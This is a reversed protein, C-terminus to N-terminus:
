GGNTHLPGLQAWPRHDKTVVYTQGAAADDLVRTPNQRLEAVSVAKM